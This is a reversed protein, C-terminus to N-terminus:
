LASLEAVAQGTQGALSADTDPARVMRAEGLPESGAIVAM